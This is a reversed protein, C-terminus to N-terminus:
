EKPGFLELGDGKQKSSGPPSATPASGVPAAAGDEAPLEDAEAEGTVAPKSGRTKPNTTKAAPARKGRSTSPEVFSRPMPQTNTVMDRPIQILQGIKLNSPNVDPNKDALIPWNRAEGTYWKAISSLTEGPYRVTHEFFQPARTTSTSTWRCATVGLAIALLVMVVVTAHALRMFM